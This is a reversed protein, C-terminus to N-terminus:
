SLATVSSYRPTVKQHPVSVKTVNRDGWLTRSVLLLKEKSLQTGSPKVSLHNKFLSINKFYKKKWAKQTCFDSTEQCSDQQFLDNTNFRINVGWEKLFYGCRENEGAEGLAKEKLYWINEKKFTNSNTQRWHCWRRTTSFATPVLPVSFRTLQFPLSPYFCM